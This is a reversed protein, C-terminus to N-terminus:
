VAESELFCWKISECLMKEEGGTIELQWELIQAWNKPASQRFDQLGSYIWAVSHVFSEWRYCLSSVFSVSSTVQLNRIWVDQLGLFIRILSRQLQWSGGYNGTGVTKSYIAQCAPSIRLQMQADQVLSTDQCLNQSQKFSKGNPPLCTMLLSEPTSCQLM